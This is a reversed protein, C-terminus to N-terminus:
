TLLEGIRGRLRNCAAAGLSWLDLIPGPKQPVDHEYKHIHRHRVRRFWAVVPLAPVSRGFGGTLVPPLNFAPRHQARAILGFKLRECRLLPPPRRRGPTRGAVSARRFGSRATAASTFATQSVHARCVAIDAKPPLASM